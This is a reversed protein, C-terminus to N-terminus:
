TKHASPGHVQNAGKHLKEPGRRLNSSKNNGGSTVTLSKQYLLLLYRVIETSNGRVKLRALKKM